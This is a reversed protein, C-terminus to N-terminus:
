QGMTSILWSEPHQYGPRAESYIPLRFFAAGSGISGIGMLDITFVFSNNGNSREYGAGIGWCGPIYRVGYGQTFMLDASLSYNHYTNIYIDKYVKLYTSLSIENVALDPLQEYDLRVINGTTSDYAVSLDQARGRSDSSLDMDLDWSVTLYKKPMVDLRFGVPSFGERMVGNTDFLPDEISPEQVNYFQFVRFRVLERYVTTLEGAANPTVEKATLFTTFGYRVGNRSQNADLQDLTPILGSTTQTAYEYSVEPRISHQVATIDGFNVTFERNLRTSTDLAFDPAARGVFNDLGGTDWQVAYANARLGASPEIDLYNGWHMPYYARPYVDLRQDSDGSQRWYNVAASEFSYYFPTHDIESPIVNYSLSPLEQTTQNKLTSELDEWYRADFSLLQSETKKELYLDSERVLSTWDYLLNRGFNSGFETSSHAWSTSGVSFEQMFNRDSVYDVDIKAEIGWPLQIDQKGRLWYRDQTQFPYGKETLFSQSAQDELYNFMWVGKGWEQNNIRYEAGGMIGRRAMYHAYFTADMDDRFAWYYPIEFQWGLLSSSGAMPLLFGSQRQTEVPLGILPWYVFPWSQAWFSADYTWANGEVTVKMSNFQIKWDPNAPNCSTVFGEKLDFETPSLKSISKGQVFFNNESFYLVGSDMWATETDLNWIVHEGKVWNRGYQVTVNGTLDAERTQNNVSAYDATILRDKSSITVHGEAEYLQKDKDYILKDALIKWPLQSSEAINAAGKIAIPDAALANSPPVAIIALCYLFLILKSFM